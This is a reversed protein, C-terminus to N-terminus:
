RIEDPSAGKPFDAGGDPQGGSRFGKERAQPSRSERRPRTAMSVSHLGYDLNM